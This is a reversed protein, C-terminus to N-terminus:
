ICGSGQDGAGGSRYPLSVGVGPQDPFCGIAEREGDFLIDVVATEVRGGGIAAVAEQDHVLTSVPEDVRRAEVPM